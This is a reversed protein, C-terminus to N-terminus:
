VTPINTSTGYEYDNIFSEDGFLSRLEERSVERYDGDSSALYYLDDRFHSGADRDYFLWEAEVIGYVKGDAKRYWGSISFGEQRMGESDIHRPAPPENELKEILAGIDPVSQLDDETYKEESYIVTENMADLEITEGTPFGNIVRTYRVYLSTNTSNGSHVFTGNEFPATYAIADQAEEFTFDSLTLIQRNDDSGNAAMERVIAKTEELTCGRYAPFFDYYGPRDLLCNPSIYLEEWGEKGWLNTDFVGDTFPVIYGSAQSHYFVPTKFVMDFSEMTRKTKNVMLYNECGIQQMVFVIDTYGTLDTSLDASLLFYIEDLQGVGSIIENVKLRLIRYEDKDHGQRYYIDPLAELVRASIVLQEEYKKCPLVEEAFLTQFSGVTVSQKGSLTPLNELANLLPLTGKEPTSPIPISPATTSILPPTTASDTIDQTFTPTPTVADQRRSLAVGVTASVLLCLCAALAILSISVRRYKKRGELADAASEIYRADVDSLSELLREPKM